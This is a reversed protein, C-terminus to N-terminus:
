NNLASCSGRFGINYGSHSRPNDLHLYFVGNDAGDNWYGGAIPLREAEANNFYVTDDGYDATTTNAEPLLALAQLLLKAADGISSDATIDGFKCGAATTPNSITTVFKWKSNVYDLKVTGATTGSGNPAVLEGTAADIAKWATSTAGQPNEPDAADNDKLIQVEGYVLRLGGLWEYVNGNLDFIGGPTGDHSWSVPGTGTAVRCTRGDGDKYTPIAKYTSETHDKGYNNNGKPMTGNKKCWLAIAAWEARTMLHWGDGKAECRQRSTDFNIYVAADEGPLSYAGGGHVVNQYKSCWFGDIEHGNVRFAPHVSTDQTNLVDCLRFKPIWVMISPMDLDDVMVKNNPALMKVALDLQDYNAM